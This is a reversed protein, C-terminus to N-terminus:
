SKIRSLLRAKFGGISKGDLEWWRSTWCTESSSGGGTEYRRLKRGDRLDFSRLLIVGGDSFYPDNTEMPISM